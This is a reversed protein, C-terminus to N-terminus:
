FPPKDAYWSGLTRFARWFAQKSAPRDLSQDIDPCWIAECTHTWRQLEGPLADLRTAEPQELGNVAALAEHGMVVILKPEVIRIERLLWEPCRDRMCATPTTSCKICNTGYLDLPDVALREVSRRIADGARGNFAVGEDLEDAGPAWKILMIDAMPHGTGLVRSGSEDHECRGCAGIDDGLAHIDVIARDLYRQAVQDDDSAHPNLHSM